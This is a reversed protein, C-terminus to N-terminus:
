MPSFVVEYVVVIPFVMSSTDNHLDVIIYIRMITQVVNPKSAIPSEEIL